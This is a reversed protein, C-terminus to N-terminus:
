SPSLGAEFGKVLQPINNIKKLKVPILDFQSSFKLSLFKKIREGIISYSIIIRDKNNKVFVIESYYSDSIIFDEGIFIILPIDHMIKTCAEDSYISAGKKDFALFKSKETMIKITIGSPTIEEITREM